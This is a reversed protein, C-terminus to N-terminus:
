KMKSTLHGVFGGKKGGLASGIKGLGSKKGKFKLGKKLMGM